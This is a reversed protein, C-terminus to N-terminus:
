KSFAANQSSTQCFYSSNVVEEWRAIKGRQLTFIAMDNMHYHENDDYVDLDYRVVIKNGAGLVEILPFDIKGKLYLGLQQLHRNFSQYGSYVERGNTVLTIDPAFYQNTIKPNMKSNDAWVANIYQLANTIVQEQSKSLNTSSIILSNTEAYSFSAYLSLGIILANRLLM